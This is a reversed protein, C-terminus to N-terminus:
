IGLRGFLEEKYTKSVRFVKGDKMHAEVDGFGIQEIHSLFATNIITSRHIRIFAREELQEEMNTLSERLLFKKEGTYIEVYYGSAEVYRIDDTKVFCIKGAQKVPLTRGGGARSNGRRLFDLLANLQESNPQAQEKRILQVAKDLSQHFREERFPKLLYDFAFVDFARLAYQDYATSFIILPIKEQPLYKIVEFGSMDKMRIDLFILDPQHELIAQIAEAGSRCEGVLAVEQRQALLSRIRQRALAEDDIILTRIM